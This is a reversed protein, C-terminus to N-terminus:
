LAKVFKQADAIGMGTEDCVLRIAQVEQGDAM